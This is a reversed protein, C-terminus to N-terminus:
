LIVVAYKNLRHLAGIYIDLCISIHMTCHYSTNQKRTLKKQSNCKDVQTAFRVQKKQAEDELPHNRCRLCPPIQEKLERAFSARLSKNRGYSLFVFGLSAIVPGILQSAYPYWHNSPLNIQCPEMGNMKNVVVGLAVCLGWFAIHTTM